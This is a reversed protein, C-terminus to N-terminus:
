RLPKAGDSRTAALDHFFEALRECEQRTQALVSWYVLWIEARTMGETMKKTILMKLGMWRRRSFRGGRGGLGCFLDIALPKSM